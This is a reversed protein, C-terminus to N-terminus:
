DNIKGSSLYEDYNRVPFTRFRKLTKITNLLGDQKKLNEEQDARLYYDLELLEEINRM